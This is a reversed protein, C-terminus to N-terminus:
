WRRTNPPPPAPPPATAVVPPAPPPTQCGALAAAVGALALARVVTRRTPVTISM